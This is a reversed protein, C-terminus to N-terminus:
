IRNDETTIGIKKVQESHMNVLVRNIKRHTTAWSMKIEVGDLLVNYVDFRYNDLVEDYKEVVSELPHTGEVRISINVGKKKITKMKVFGNIIILQILNSKFGNWHENM